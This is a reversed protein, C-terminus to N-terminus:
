ARASVLWCAIGPRVGSADAVAEFRAKVAAVVRDRTADDAGGLARSLPGLNTMQFAARDASAGLDM